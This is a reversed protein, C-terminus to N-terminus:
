SKRLRNRETINYNFIKYKYERKPTKAEWLIRLYAFRFIPCILKCEVIKKRDNRGKIFREEKGHPDTKRKKEYRLIDVFPGASRM